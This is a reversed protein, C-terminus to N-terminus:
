EDIQMYFLLRQLKKKVNKTEEKGVKKFEYTNSHGNKKFCFSNVLNFQKQLLISNSSVTKFKVICQVTYMFHKLFTVEKERTFSKLVELKTIFHYPIQLRHNILEQTTQHDFM